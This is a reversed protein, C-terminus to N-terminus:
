EKKSVTVMAARVLRGSLEYGAQMVSVIQGDAVQSDSVTAVAQHFNHDFSDGAKPEIRVLGHKEFARAFDNKTMQLGDFLHKIQPNENTSLLGMSESARYLNDIAPLLDKLFSSIAYKGTDTIQKEYRKAMNEKDAALRLMSDKLKAIEAQQEEFIKNSEHKKGGLKAAHSIKESVEEIHAKLAPDVMKEDTINQSNEAQNSEQSKNEM